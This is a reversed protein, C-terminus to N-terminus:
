PLAKKNFTKIIDSNIDPATRCNLVSTNVWCPESANTVASMGTIMISIITMIIIKKVNLIKRM